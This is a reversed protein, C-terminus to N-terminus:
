ICDTGRRGDKEKEWESGAGPKEMTHKFWEKNRRLISQKLRDECFDGKIEKWHCIGKTGNGLVKRCIIPVSVWYYWPEGIRCGSLWEEEKTCLNEGNLGCWICKGYWMTMAEQQKNTLGWMWKIKSVGLKLKGEDGIRDCDSIKTDTLLWEIDGISYQKYEWNLHDDRSWNVLEWFLCIM